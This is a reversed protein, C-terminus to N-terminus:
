VRRLIEPFRARTDLIQRRFSWDFIHSGSRVVMGGLLTANFQFTVLMNPSLNKRCWTVLSTKIDSTAPAALTITMTPARRILNELESALEGLSRSSLDHRVNWERLLEATMRSVAPADTPHKAHLGKQLEKHSLWKAYEHVELTMEKVDQLSFTSEPLNLKM